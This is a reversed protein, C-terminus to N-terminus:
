SPLMALFYLVLTLDFDAPCVIFVAEGHRIGFCELDGVGNLKASPLGSTDRPSTRSGTLLEGQFNSRLEPMGLIKLNGPKM